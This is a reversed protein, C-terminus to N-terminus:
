SKTVVRRGQLALRNGCLESLATPLAECEQQFVRAALSEADDEEKVEVARQLVIPGHDYQNDVLHVTCGTVKAGSKIVAQHVRSGYFGEGCFAPILSPHINVVRNEFDTPILVHKLWGAMVVCEAGAERCPEFVAERYEEDTRDKRLVVRHPVHFQDAYGLGGAKRTSAIVMRIDIALRGEAQEVFLNRLTRGGGSILVAVPTPQSFPGLPQQDSM